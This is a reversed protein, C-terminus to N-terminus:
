FTLGWSDIKGTDASANDNVRLKWVGNATVASANVTFTQIINDTGGGTRNWLNFLTGNPAVLDVKLDGIYTHKIDVAVQLAAPANGAIGSVTISSEVTANDTIAVDTANSFTGGGGGTTYSGTLTVGSYAAYGRLMVYYTGAQATAINCTEANGSTYPRCDYTSTTPAAGFRVYMDVDGSGGATTFTLNSAGAPVVLTWTQESNLAGSIGTVPVGNTLVNGGGGGSVTVSKTASNTAGGNDTVTLTVSYTGSAGYTKTPNTATSTTGDGFAWSRSAITGDSDSSTDTFTATLASTTFSFNATPPTNGPGGTNDLGDLTQAGTSGPDLWNSLRTANSGGGAWSVSVRGYYDRKNADTASCSSPGGHLQGIVRKEPSYLPSGSSGGETVGIGPRWKVQVHTGDGPEATSNYSTTATSTTSLSIRKEATAPHHIGFASPFNQSRRDWGNWFLNHAPNPADDLEVLTFDSPTNAARFIAGTQFQGMTGNGAAGSAASGVPRCFSNQFNWYVVLSAANGSNIGCHAATLFYMKRDQATNNLLSGTCFTSGGTSYVAVARIQDRYPDGEPCVVDVNCSGSVDGVDAPTVGTAIEAAVRGFGRYDHNVSTLELVLEGTRERPVVAEVVIDDSMVIPTWLQGHPANDADSFERVLTPDANRQMGAPYVLLRGGAPMHYQTFGLNISHAGPSTIRLRWIRHGADLDEWTGSKEPNLAVAIPVAFRPPLAGRARRADDNRLAQLDVAPMVQRDVRDLSALSNEFAAPAAALALLPAAALGFALALRGFRSLTSM